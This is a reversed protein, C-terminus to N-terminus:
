GSDGGALIQITQENATQKIVLQIVSRWTSTLKKAHRLEYRRFSHKTASAGPPPPPVGPFEQHHHAARDEFGSGRRGRWVLFHLKGCSNEFWVELIWVRKWLRTGLASKGPKPPQAPFPRPMPRDCSWGVGLIQPHLLYAYSRMRHSLCFMSSPPYALTKILAEGPRIKGSYRYSKM